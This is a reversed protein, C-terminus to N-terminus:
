RVRDPAAPFHHDYSGSSSPSCRKLCARAAGRACAVTQLPAPTRDCGSRGVSLVRISVGDCRRDATEEALPAQPHAARGRMLPHSLPHTGSPSQKTSSHKPHAGRLPTRCASRCDHRRAAIPRESAFFHLRASSPRYFSHKISFFTVKREALGM